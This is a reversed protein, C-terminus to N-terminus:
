RVPAKRAHVFRTLAKKTLGTLALTSAAEPAFWAWPGPGSGAGEPNPPPTRELRASRLHARIRHRTISHSLTGLEGEVLALPLAWGPAFLRPEAGPEVCERTPLQWMGGMLGGPPRRELLVRARAPGTERAPTERAEDRVTERVLALELRVDLPEPRRKPRPLELARGSRRAACSRVLPCEPCRPARPTCLTAGLEMLAQNWDRPRAQGLDSAFREALAWASRVLEPSGAAADLEFLRAFVREVNGDVLPEPQDFAISLLAGATYRGIGPLALLEGRTRPFEGAHDSAIRRAAAHLARARRYYGLGSWAALVDEESAAALAEVSPFRELFRVWFDGVTEVRTQQLMAESIWIAYPDRSRRWPLDRAAGRYWGVLRQVLRRRRAASLTPNLNPAAM